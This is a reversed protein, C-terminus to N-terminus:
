RKRGFRPPVLEAMAKDVARSRCELESASQEVLPQNGDKDLFGFQLHEQMEQDVTVPLLNSNGVYKNDEEREVLVTYKDKISTKTLM